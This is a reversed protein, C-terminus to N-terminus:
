DVAVPVKVTLEGGDYTVTVEVEHDGAKASGVKFHLSVIKKEGVAGVTTEAEKFTLGEPGKVKVKVGDLKGAPIVGVKLTGTKGKAHGIAETQAQIEVAKSARRVGTAKSQSAGYGLGM